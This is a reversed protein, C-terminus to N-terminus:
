ICVIVKNGSKYIITLKFTRLIISCVSIEITCNSMCAWTATLEKGHAEGSDRFVCVHPWLETDDDVLFVHSLLKTDDAM